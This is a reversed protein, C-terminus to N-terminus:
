CARSVGPESIRWFRANFCVIRGNPDAVFAPNGSEALATALSRQLEIRACDDIFRTLEAWLLMEGHTSFQSPAGGGDRWDLLVELPVDLDEAIARCLTRLLEHRPLEAALDRFASQFALQLRAHRSDTDMEAGALIEADDAGTQWITM